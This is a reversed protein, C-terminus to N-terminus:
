SHYSTAVTVCNRGRGKSEYLCSDASHLLEEAASGNEPYAAIGVSFTVSDLIQEKFTVRHSVAAQRLEEVRKGTLDPMVWDVIVVSPSHSEFLQIAEHGSKAFV